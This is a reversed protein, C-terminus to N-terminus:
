GLIQRMKRQLASTTKVTMQPKAKEFGPRMFPRPPLVISDSRTKYWKDTGGKKDSGRGRQTKGRRSSAPRQPIVAGYEHIDATFDNSGVRMAGNVIDRRISRHLLGSQRHPPSGPSSPTGYQTVWRKRGSDGAVISYTHRKRGEDRNGVRLQGKKTTRLGPARTKVQDKISKQLVKASEQVPESRANGTWEAFENLKRFGKKWPDGKGSQMRSRALANPRAM